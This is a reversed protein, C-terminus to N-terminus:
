GRSLRAIAARLELVEIPANPWDHEWCVILDCAAPDHGHEHFNRSRYEFEIRVREWRTEDVRRKAICDPFAKASVKEVSFGLDEALMGFALVVGNEDLPAYMLNRFGVPEGCVAGGTSPWYPGPAIAPTRVRADPLAAIREGLADRLPFEPDHIAIWEAFAVLAGRWNRFRRYLVGSGFTFNRELMKLTTVSGEVLFADRMASFIEDDSTRHSWGTTELGAATCVGRWGGFLKYVANHNIGTARRFDGLSLTQTGRREAVARAAAVIDDRTQM